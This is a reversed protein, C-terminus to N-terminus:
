GAEIKAQDCELLHQLRPLAPTGPVPVLMVLRLGPSGVVQLTIQELVLEGVAPHQLAKNVNTREQVDHSSWWARFEPSVEVLRSVLSRFRADGPALDYDARFQAVARRAHREWEPMVQHFHPGTFTIWIVNREDPPLCALDEHLLCAARNWALIDWRIDMIFAPIPGQSDLLFQLTPSVQPNGASPQNDAALRFLHNTEATDLRLAHAISQLVEDSARINRGQELWTYWDV